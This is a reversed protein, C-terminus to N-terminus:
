KRRTERELNHRESRHQLRKGPLETVIAARKANSAGEFLRKNQVRAIDWAEAYSMTPHAAQVAKVVMDCGLARSRSALDARESGAAKAPGEKGHFLEPSQEAAFKWAQAYSWDPHDNLVERVKKECKAARQEWVPQLKNQDPGASM